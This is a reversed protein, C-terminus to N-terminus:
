RVAPLTVPCEPRESLPGPVLRRSHQLSSDGVENLQQRHVTRTRFMEWAMM